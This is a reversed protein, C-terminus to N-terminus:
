RGLRAKLQEFWNLVVIHREESEGDETGGAGANESRLVIIREGDPHIDWDNGVIADIVVRTSDVRFVPDTSVFARRLSWAGAGARRTYFISRGDPAWRANRGGGVSVRVPQGPGPFPRVIIEPDDYQDDVLYLIRDGLPSVRPGYLNWESGVLETAELDGARPQDPVRVLWLDATGDEERVFVVVSDSAWTADFRGIAEVGAMPLAVPEDESRVSKVMLRPVADVVRYFALRDGSPSWEPGYNEGSTTWAAPTLGLAPDYTYIQPDSDSGDPVGASFAIEGGDPSYRPDWFERADLPLQVEEGTVLDRELLIRDGGFGGARGESYVLTGDKAIAFFTYEGTVSVGDRV